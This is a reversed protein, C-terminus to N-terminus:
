VRANLPERRPTLFRASWVPELQVDLTDPSSLEGGEEGRTQLHMLQGAGDGLYTTGGTWEGPGEPLM